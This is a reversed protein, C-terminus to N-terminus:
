YEANKLAELLYQNNYRKSFKRALDDSIGNVRKLKYENMDYEFLVNKIIKISGDEEIEIGRIESVEKPYRRGEYKMSADMTDKVSVIEISRCIERLASEETKFFGGRVLANAMDYLGEEVDSSHWTSWIGFSQRKAMQTLMMVDVPTRAEGLILVDAALRFLIEMFDEEEKLGLRLKRAWLSKIRDLAIEFSTEATVVSTNAPYRACLDRIDTSKGSGQPGFVIGRPKYKMIIDWFTEFEETSSGLEIKKERSLAQAYHLRLNFSYDSCIPPCLLTVRSQDLLETEIKDHAESLAIKSNKSLRIVVKEIEKAPYDIKEFKFKNGSIVVGVQGPGGMILEEVKNFKADIGLDLFEDLIGLGFCDQYIVQVFKELKVELDANKSILLTNLKSILLDSRVASIETATGFYNIYYGELIRDIDKESVRYKTTVLKLIEQKLAQRAARDGQAAREVVNTEKKFSLVNKANSFLHRLPVDHQQSVYNTSNIDEIIKANFTALAKIARADM